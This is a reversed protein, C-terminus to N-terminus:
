IKICLIIPFNLLFNENNKAYNLITFCIIFIGNNENRKGEKFLEKELYNIRSKLINKREEEDNEKDKQLFSDM